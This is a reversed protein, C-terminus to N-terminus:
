KIGENEKRWLDILTFVIVTDESSFKRDPGCVLQMMTKQLWEIPIDPFERKKEKTM